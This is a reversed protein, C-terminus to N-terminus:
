PNGETDAGRGARFSRSMRTVIADYDKRLRAPYQIVFGNVIKGGHSLQYREYFILGGRTGAIVFWSAGRQEYTIREGPDRDERIFEELGKLDHELSNHSGYVTFIATDSSTFARGAGHIPTPGGRRRPLLSPLL